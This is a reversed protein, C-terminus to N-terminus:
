DLGIFRLIWLLERPSQPVVTLSVIATALVAVIQSAAAVFGSHRMRLYRGYGRALGLAAHGLNRRTVVRFASVLIVAATILFIIQMATM